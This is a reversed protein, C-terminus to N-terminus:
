NTESPAAVYVALTAHTRKINEALQELFARNTSVALQNPVDFPQTICARFSAGRILPGDVAALRAALEKLQKEPVGYLEPQLQMNSVVRKYAALADPLHSARLLADDIAILLGFIAGLADFARRMTVAKFTAAFLRQKSEYLSALQHTLNIALSNARAVFQHLAFLLPLARAALVEPRVAEGTGGPAEALLLTAPLLLTHAHEAMAAAEDCLFAFVVVVKNFLKNDTQVLSSCVAEARPVADLVVVPM